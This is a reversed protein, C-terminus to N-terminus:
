SYCHLRVEDDEAEGASLKASTDDNGADLSAESDHM